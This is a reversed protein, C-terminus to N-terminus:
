EYAKRIWDLIDAEPVEMGEENVLQTVRDTISISSDEEGLLSIKPMEVVCYDEGRLFGRALFVARAEKRLHGDRRSQFGRRAKELRAAQKSCQRQESWIIRKSLKQEEKRTLRAEIQLIISRLKLRASM